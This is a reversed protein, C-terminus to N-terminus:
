HGGREPRTNMCSNGDYAWSKVRGDTGIEMWARCWLPILFGESPVDQRYSYLLVRDGDSQTYGGDPRGWAAELEQQTAGVWGELNRKFGPTVCGALLALTTALLLTRM